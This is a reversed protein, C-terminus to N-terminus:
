TTIRLKNWACLPFRQQTLLSTGPPHLASIQRIGENYARLDWILKFVPRGGIQFVVLGFTSETQHLFPFFIELRQDNFIL